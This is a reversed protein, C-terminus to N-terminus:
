LLKLKNENPMQTMVALVTKVVAGELSIHGYHMINRAVELFTEFIVFSVM